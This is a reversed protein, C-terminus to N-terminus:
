FRIEVANSQVNGIRLRLEKVGTGYLAKPVLINVQDLGVFEEQQGSYVVTAPVGGIEATPSSTRYRIGTGFLVLYVQGDSASPAQISESTCAGNSCTVLNGPFQQNGEVRVYYGAAPGDGTANASFLAPKVEALTIVSSNHRVGNRYLTLTAAGLPFEDPIFFNIQGPSVYFLPCDRSVGERSLVLRTGHIETPLPLKSAFGAQPALQVGFVSAISGIALPGQAYSAANVPYSISPQQSQASEIRVKVGIQLPLQGAVAGELHVLCQNYEGPALSAIQGAMLTVNVTFPTTLGTTGALIPLTSGSACEVHVSKFSVENSGSRQVSASASLQGTTGQPLTFVIPSPQATAGSGTIPPTSTPEFEAYLLIPTALDYTEPNNPSNGRLDSTWRVFRSGTGPLATFTVMGLYQWNPASRHYYQWDGITKYLATTSSIQVRSGDGPANGRVVARVGIYWASLLDIRTGTPPVTYSLSLGSGLSWREFVFLSHDAAVFESGVAELLLQTGAQLQLTHPATYSVGNAKFPVGVAWADIHVAVTQLAKQTITITQGLIRLTGSRPQGSENELISASFYGNGQPNSSADHVIWDVSALPMWACASGSATIAVYLSGGQAGFETQSPALSVTCSGAAQTLSLTKGAVLITETLPINAPNAPLNATFTGPGTGSAGSPLQVRPTAVAQWVCAPASPTVQVTSVGGAAPIALPNASATATCAGGEQQIPVTMGAITLSSARAEFDNRGVSVTFNREGNGSLASLNTSFWLGDLKATWPCGVPLWFAVSRVGGAADFVLTSPTITPEACSARDQRIVVEVQNVRLRWQREVYSSPSETVLIRFEGNGIASPQQLSAGGSPDYDPIAIWPCGAPALVQFTLEGGRWGITQEANAVAYSCVTPDQLNLRMLYAGYGQSSNVGPSLTAGPSLPVPYQPLALGSISTIPGPTGLFRLPPSSENIGPLSTGFSVINGAPSLRGLYGQAWQSPSLLRNSTLPLGNHASPAWGLFWANNATDLAVGTLTNIGPLYTAWSISGFNAPMRVLAHTAAGISSQFGGGTGPLDPSRTSLGALVGGDADHALTLISDDEVGGYFTSALLQKGDSSVRALFGDRRFGSKAGQVAGPTVPFNTSLTSGGLIVEDQSTVAIVSTDDGSTGGIMLSYSASQGDPAVATLGAGTEIFAAFPSRYAGATIPYDECNSNIALIARSQSDAAMDIVRQFGSCSVVTTWLLSAGDSALKGLLTRHTLPTTPVLPTTGIVPRTVAIESFAVQTNYTFYIGGDPALALRYEQSAPPVWSIYTTFVASSWDPSIKTIFINSPSSGPLRRPPQSEGPLVSAQSHGIAYLNGATDPKISMLFVNGNGGFYTALELIPDVVLPLLPDYAEVTFGVRNGGPLTYRAAIERRQGAQMQYVLPRRQLLHRGARTIRLNGDTDVELADAEEVRLRVSEPSAGPMLVFDYELRNQNGYFEVDVGPYVGRYAVRLSNAVTRTPAPNGAELYHTPTTALELSQPEIRGDALGDFLIRLPQRTDDPESAFTIGEASLGAKGGAHRVVFDYAPPFQGANREFLLPLAPQSEIRASTEARVGWPAAAIVLAVMLLANAAVRFARTYGM